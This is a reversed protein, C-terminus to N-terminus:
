FSGQNALQEVQTPTPIAELVSLQDIAFSMDWGGALLLEPDVMANSHYGFGNLPMVQGDLWVQYDLRYGNGEGAIVIHFWEGETVYGLDAVVISRTYLTMRGDADVWLDFIGNGLLRDIGRPLEDVRLWASVGTAYLSNSGMPLSFDVGTVTLAPHDLQLWSDGTVQLAGDARDERDTTFSAEGPEFVFTDPSVDGVMVPSADRSDSLLSDDFSWVGSQAVMEAPDLPDADASDVLWDGDTDPHNVDTGLDFEEGDQLGDADTDPDLPDSFVVRIEDFDGLDDEDTDAADNSTGHLAEERSFLQDGDSDDLWVLQVVDGARLTWQDLPLGQEAEVCDSVVRWIERDAVVTRQGELDLGDAGLSADLGLVTTLADMIGMGVPRGDGDVRGNTAVRLRLPEREPGYDILVEATRALLDTGNLAFPRGEGDLLEYSSVTLVLGSPDDLLDLGQEWTLEDLAFVVDNFQDGPAQSLGAWGDLDDATLSGLPVEMMPNTLDRHRASLTLSAITYALDGTNVVDVTTLLSASELTVEQSLVQEESLEAAARSESTYDNGYNVTTEQSETTTDSYGASASGGFDLLSASVEVEGSWTSSSETTNAVGYSTSATYSNAVESTNAVGYAVSGGSASVGHVNVSPASTLRVELQPLDAVLPNFRTPDIRPDFGLRALEDGDSLGDGDTDALLPSTGLAVEEADTLGDGDTDTDTDTDTIPNSTTGVDPGVPTSSDGKDASSGGACASLLAVVALLTHSRTM